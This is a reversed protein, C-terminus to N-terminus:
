KTCNPALSLIYFTRKQILKFLLLLVGDVYLWIFDRDFRFFISHRILARSFSITIGIFPFVSLSLHLFLSLSVCFYFMNVTYCFCLLVRSSVFRFSRRAISVVIFHFASLFFTLFLPLPFIRYRFTSLCCKADNINRNEVKQM